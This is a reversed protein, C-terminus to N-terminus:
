PLAQLIAKYAAGFPTPDGQYDTIPVSPCSGWADWIGPMLTAARRYLRGIGTMRRGYSFHAPWVLALAM